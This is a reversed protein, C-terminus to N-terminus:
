AHLSYAIQCVLTLILSCLLFKLIDYKNYLLMKGVNVVEEDKVFDEQREWIKLAKLPKRFIVYLYFNVLWFFLFSFSFSFKSRSRVFFEYEHIGHLIQWTVQAAPLANTSLVLITSAVQVYLETVPFFFLLLSLFLYDWIQLSFLCQFKYSSELM